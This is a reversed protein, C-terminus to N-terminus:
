APCLNPTVETGTHRGPQGSHLGKEETCCGAAGPPPPHGQLMEESLQPARGLLEPAAGQGTGPASPAPSTSAEKRQPLSHQCLQSAKGAPWCLGSSSKLKLQVHYFHPALAKLLDLLRPGSRGSQYLLLVEPLDSNM